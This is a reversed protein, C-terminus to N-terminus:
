GLGLSISDRLYQSVVVHFGPVACLYPLCRSMCIAVEREEDLRHDPGAQRALVIAGERLVGVGQDLIASWVGAMVRVSGRFRSAAGDDGIM